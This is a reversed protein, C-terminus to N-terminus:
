DNMHQYYTGALKALQVLGVNRLRTEFRIKAVAIINAEDYDGPTLTGIGPGKVSQFVSMGDELSGFTWVFPKLTKEGDAYKRTFTISEPIKKIGSHAYQVITHNYYFDDEMTQVWYQGTTQWAADMIISEIWYEGGKIRYAAFLAGIAKVMKVVLIGSIELSDKFECEVILLDRDNDTRDGRVTLPPYTGNELMEREKASLPRESLDTSFIPNKEDLILEVMWKILYDKFIEAFIRIDLISLEILRKKNLETM